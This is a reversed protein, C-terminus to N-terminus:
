AVGIQKYTSLFVHGGRETTSPLTAIHTVEAWDDTSVLAYGLVYGGQIMARVQDKAWAVALASPQTEDDDAGVIIVVHLSEDGDTEQDAPGWCGWSGSVFAETEVGPLLMPIQVENSPDSVGFVYATHDPHPYVGFHLHYM